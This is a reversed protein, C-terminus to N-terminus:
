SEIEEPDFGRHLQDKRYDRRLLGLDYLVSSKGENRSGVRAKLVKLDDAMKPLMALANKEADTLAMDDELETKILSFFRSTPFSTGPDTRRSPDMTSHRVFGKHGGWAQSSSLWRVPIDYKDVWEAAKRAARLLAASDWVPYDGWMNAHTAFSMHLTPTNFSRIGFAVAIDPLLTVESDSDNTYHYSAPSSAQDRLYRAIAEGSAPSPNIEGTHVGICRISDLGNFREPHGWFRKGNERMPAHPNNKTYLYATM